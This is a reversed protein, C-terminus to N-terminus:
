LKQVVNCVIINEKSGSDIILELKRGKVICRTHFLKHRQTDDGHKQSLMLKRVVCTYVEHEFDNGDDPGCLVENDCTEEEEREVFNVLNRKPCENSRHGPENCRFCKSPGSKAYPNNSNNNPPPYTYNGRNNGRAPAKISENNNTSM